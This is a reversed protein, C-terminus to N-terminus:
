RRGENIATRLLGLKAATMQGLANYTVQTEALKTMEREVDVNNGDNRMTGETSLQTVPKAEYTKVVPQLPIHRGDTTDLGLMQVKPQRKPPGALEAQLADEFNVAQAKYEPTDVNAINNAISQQRMQLGSLATKLAKATPDNFLGISV